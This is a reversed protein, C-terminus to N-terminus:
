GRDVIQGVAVLSPDPTKQRLLSCHRAIILQRHSRSRRRPSSHQLLSSTPQKTLPGRSCSITHHAHSQSEVSVDTWMVLHHPEQKLDVGDDVHSSCETASVCYEKSASYGLELQTLSVCCDLREGHSKKEPFPFLSPHKRHRGDLQVFVSWDFCSCRSLRHSWTALCLISKVAIWSM